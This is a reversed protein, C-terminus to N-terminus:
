LQIATKYCGKRASYDTYLLKDHHNVVIKFTFM